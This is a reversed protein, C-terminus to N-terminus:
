KSAAASPFRKMLGNVVALIEDSTLKRRVQDSTSATYITKGTAADIVLAVIAGKTIEAFEQKQYMAGNSTVIPTMEMQSMQERRVEYVLDLTAQEGGEPYGKTALVQQFMPILLGDADRFHREGSSHMVRVSPKAGIAGPEPIVSYTYELGGPGACAALMMVVPSLLALRVTRLM